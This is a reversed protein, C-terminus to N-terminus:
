LTLTGTHCFGLVSRHHQRGPYLRPRSASRRARPSSISSFTKSRELSADPSWMLNSGTTEIIKTVIQGEAAVIIRRFLAEHM